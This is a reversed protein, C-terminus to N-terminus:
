GRIVKIRKTKRRIINGLKELELEIPRSIPPHFEISVDRLAEELFRTTFEIIRLGCLREIREMISILEWFAREDDWPYAILAPIDPIFKLIILDDAMALINYGQLELLLTPLDYDRVIYFNSSELIYKITSVLHEGLDIYLRIARRGVELMHAIYKLFHENSANAMSAMVLVDRGEPGHLFGKRSLLELFERRIEGPDPIIDPPEIWKGLEKPKAGKRRIHAHGDAHLSLHLGDRRFPAYIYFGSNSFAMGFLRLKTNGARLGFEFKRFGRRRMIVQSSDFIIYRIFTKKASFPLLRPPAFTNLKVKLVKLSRGSFVLLCM